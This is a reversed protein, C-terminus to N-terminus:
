AGGGVLRYRVVTPIGVEDREVGWATDGRVVLHPEVALAAPASVPGLFRGAPDFADFAAPERFRLVSEGTRDAEAEAEAATMIARGPRAVVAWIRGDRDVFLDRLPPKTDPIRPGNWKWSGYQRQLGATIRARREEAEDPHVAVPESVREIRLVPASPRFLYIAYRSTIAGVTYGFPSFNWVREGTFPVQRRSASNERSATLDAREYELAPEPLTDTVQGAPSVGILAKEWEWPPVSWDLLTTVYSTGATDVHFRAYTHFGGGNPHPWAELFTGDPAYVNLHITRPDRIVVRGDPLVAVGDPSGYEGPGGGERGVDRLYEGTEADYARVVPVQSDLVYVAGNGVALAAPDGLVYVPAGDMSGIRLEPELRATDGWFSGTVTRVVVTDGVTDRMAEWEDTLDPGGGACGVPGVLAVCIAWGRYRKM